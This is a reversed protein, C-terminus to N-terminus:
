HRSVTNDTSSLTKTLVLGFVVRALCSKLYETYMNISTGSQYLDDVILITKNAVDINFTVEGKKYIGDWFNKKVDLTVSKMSPKPNLLVGELLSSNKYDRLVARLIDRTLSNQGTKHYPITTVLFQQERLPLESLMKVFFGKYIINGYDKLASQTLEARNYKLQYVAEGLDTRERTEPNRHWDGIILLELKGVNKSFVLM